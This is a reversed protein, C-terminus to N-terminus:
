WVEKLRNRIEIPELNNLKGIMVLRVIRIANKKAYYYAVPLEPGDSYRKTKKIFDFEYNELKYELKALDKDKEFENLIVEVKNEFYKGLNKAMEGIESDYFGIFDSM